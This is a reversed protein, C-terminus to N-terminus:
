KFIANMWHKANQAFMTVRLGFCFVVAGAIEYNWTVEGRLNLKCYMSLGTLNLLLQVESRAHLRSIFWKVKSNSLSVGFWFKNWCLILELM